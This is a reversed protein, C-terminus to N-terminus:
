EDNKEEDDEDTTPEHSHEQIKVANLKGAPINKVTRNGFKVDYSPITGDEMLKHHIVEGIIDGYKNKDTASRWEM